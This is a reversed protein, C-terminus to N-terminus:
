SVRMKLLIDLVSIKGEGCVRLYEKERSNGMETIPVELWITTGAVSKLMMRSFEWLELGM